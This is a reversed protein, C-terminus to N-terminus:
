QGGGLGAIVAALRDLAVPAVRFATLLRPSLFGSPDALGLFQSAVLAWPTSARRYTVDWYQGTTIGGYLTVAGDLGPFTILGSSQATYTFASIGTVGLDDTVSVTGAGGSASLVRIVWRGASPTGPIASFVAEVPWPSQVAFGNLSFLSRLASKTYTVRPDTATIVDAFPSEAVLDALQACRLFHETRTLGSGILLSRLTAEQTQLPRAAFLPWLVVPNPSTDPAAPINDLYALFNNIM